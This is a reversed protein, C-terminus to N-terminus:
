PTVEGGAVGALVPDPFLVRPRGSADRTAPDERCADMIRVIAAYSVDDSPLIVVRRDAPRADKVRALARTLGELDYATAGDCRGGGCPLVVPEFGDLGPRLEMGSPDAVITVEPPAGERPGPPVVEKLPTEIASVQLFRAAMLLFPVLLAMLSM